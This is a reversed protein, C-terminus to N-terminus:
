TGVGANQCVAILGIDKEICFLAPLLMQQLIMATQDVPYTKCTAIPRLERALFSKHLVDLGIM